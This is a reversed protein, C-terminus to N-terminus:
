LHRCFYFYLSYIRYKLVKFYSLVIQNVPEQSDFLSNATSIIKLLFHHKTLFRNQYNLNMLNLSIVLTTIMPCLPATSRLELTRLHGKSEEIVRGKFPRKFWHYVFFVLDDTTQLYESLRKKITRMM